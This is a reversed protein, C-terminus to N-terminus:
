PADLEVRTETAPLLSLTRRHFEFGFDRAVVVTVEGPLLGGVRIEGGAAGNEFTARDVPRVAFGLWPEAWFPGATFALAGDYGRTSTSPPAVHVCPNTAALGRTRSYRRARRGVRNQM